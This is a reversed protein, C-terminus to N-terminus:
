YSGRYVYLHDNRNIVIGSEYADIVIGSRLESVFDRWAQESGRSERIGCLLVVVERERGHLDLFRRAEGTDDCCLLARGEPLPETVESLHPIRSDAYKGYEMMDEKHNRLTYLAAGPSLRAVMRYWLMGTHLDAPDAGKGKAEAYRAQLYRDIYYPYRQALVERILRFAYTSHVGHGAGYMMQRLPRWVYPSCRRYLKM